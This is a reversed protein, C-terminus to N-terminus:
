DSGRMVSDEPDRSATPFIDSYTSLESYYSSNNLFLETTAMTRNFLLSTFTIISSVFLYLYIALILFVLTFNEWNYKVM